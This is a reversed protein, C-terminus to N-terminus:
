NLIKDRQSHSSFFLKAVNVVLHFTFGAVDDVRRGVGVGIGVALGDESAAFLTEDMKVSHRFRVVVPSQHTKGPPARFNSPSLM